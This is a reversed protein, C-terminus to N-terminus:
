RTRPKFRQIMRVLDPAHPRNKPNHACMERVFENLTGSYQGRLPWSTELRPRDPVVSLLALAQCVAGLQWIDAAGSPGSKSGSQAEWAPTGAQQAKGRVVDRSWLACGFDGLVVRSYSGKPVDNSLFINQPKIDLHYITDWHHQYKTDRQADFVGWHLFALAKAVSLMVHWILDEPVRREQRRYLRIMDDLTGAECYELIVTLHTRGANWFYEEMSNLNQRGRIRILTEVEAIAQERSVGHAAIRKAIFRKGTRKQKVVLIAESMGGTKLSKMISYGPVHADGRVRNAVRSGMRGVMETVGHLRGGLERRQPRPDELRRRGMQRDLDDMVDGHRARGGYLNRNDRYRPRVETVAYREHGYRRQQLYGFM